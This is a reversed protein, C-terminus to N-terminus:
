AGSGLRNGPRYARPALDFALPPCRLPYGSFAEGTGILLTRVESDGVSMDVRENAIALMATGLLDLRKAALRATGRESGPAVSCQVTQFGRGMLDCPHERRQGFSQVRGRGLPDEAISLRGDRRPQSASPLMSLRQMLVEEGIEVERVELQIFQSGSQTAGFLYEPEPQDDVGARLKKRHEVQAGARLVGRM